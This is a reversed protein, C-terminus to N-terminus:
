IYWRFAYLVYLIDNLAIKNKYIGKKGFYPKEQEIWEYKKTLELVKQRCEAACKKIDNIEHNLKKVDLEMDKNQKIINEKKAILRQMDKNQQNIIDKQKKINNQFETVKNKTEELEQRLTAGKEEFTNNEENAQRLQENGNEISKKLEKIELELTESEQERNQWEKRSQEAKVKLTNLQKEADKLQRERINVADKLQIEIDKARKANEKELKKATDMRETLEEIAVNLLDM